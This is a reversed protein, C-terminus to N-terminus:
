CYSKRDVKNLVLVVPNKVEGLSHFNTINNMIIRLNAWVQGTYLIKRLFGESVEGPRISAKNHITIQWLLTKLLRNYVKFRSIFIKQCITTKLTSHVFETPSSTM